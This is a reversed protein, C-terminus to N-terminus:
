VCCIKNFSWLAYMRSWIRNMNLESGISSNMTIRMGSFVASFQYLDSNTYLQIDWEVSIPWKPSLKILWIVWDVTDCCQLVTTLWLWGHWPGIGGLLFNASQSYSSLIHFSYITSSYYKVVIFQINQSRKIVNATGLWRESHNREDCLSLVAPVVGVGSWELM